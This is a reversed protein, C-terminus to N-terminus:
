HGHCHHESNLVVTVRSYAVLQPIGSSMSALLSIIKDTVICRENFGIKTYLHVNCLCITKDLSFNLLLIM